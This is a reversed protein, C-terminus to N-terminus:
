RAEIPSKTLNLNLFNVNGGPETNKKQDETKPLILQASIQLFSQTGGISETTVRNISVPTYGLVVVHDGVELLNGDFDTVGGQVKVTSHGWQLPPWM